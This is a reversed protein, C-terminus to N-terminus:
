KNVRVKFSVQGGQGPKVPKALVWKVHTVMEAPAPREIKKGDPGVEKIKIPPKEFSKGGNISLLVGADKGGASGEVYVVGEPVPDLVEAKVADEDGENKYGLTYVLVDGPDVKKAPVLKIRDKGDPGKERVEKEATITIVVHPGKKAQAMSWGSITAIAVLGVMWAKVFRKM